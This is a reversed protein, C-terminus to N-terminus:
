SNALYLKTVKECVDLLYINKNCNSIEFVESDSNINICLISNENSYNIIKNIDTKDEFVFSIQPNLFSISIDGENFSEIYKLIIEYDENHETYLYLVPLEKVVFKYKYKDVFIFNESIIQSLVEEISAGLGNIVIFYKVKSIAFIENIKTLVKQKEYINEKYFSILIKNKNNNYLNISIM